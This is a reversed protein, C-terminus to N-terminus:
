YVRRLELAKSPKQYDKLFRQYPRKDVYDHKFQTLRGDTVWRHNRFENIEYYYAPRLLHNSYFDDLTNLYKQTANARDRYDVHAKGHQLLLNNANLGQRTVGQKISYVTKEPSLMFPRLYPSVYPALRKIRAINQPAGKSNQSTRLLLDLAQKDVRLQWAQVDFGDVVVGENLWHFYNHMFAKHRFQETHSLQSWKAMNPKLVLAKRTDTFRWRALEEEAHHLRQNHSYNAHMNWLREGLDEFMHLTQSGKIWLPYLYPNDRIEQPAKHYLFGGARISMVSDYRQSFSSLLRATNEKYADNAFLSVLIFFALGIATFVLAFVGRYRRSVVM